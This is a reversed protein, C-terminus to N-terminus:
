CNAKVILTKSTLCTSNVNKSLMKIENATIAHVNLLMPM